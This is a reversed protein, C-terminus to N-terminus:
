GPAQWRTYLFQQPVGAPTYHDEILSDRLAFGPGLMASVREVTYREVPLGSCRTPGAPGFVALIVHGQPMLACRLVEAYRQQERHKRLFHLVARDHWVAYRRAPQFSTVDGAIWTVRNAAPGLRARSQDLAEPALDMVTLDSYGLTLLEDALSSAGGGVDLIPADSPAGTSRIWQLSRRPERQYWSLEAAGKSGYIRRWHEASSETM